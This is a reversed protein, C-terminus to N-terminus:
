HGPMELRISVQRDPRGACHYTGDFYIIDADM